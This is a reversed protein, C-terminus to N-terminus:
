EETDSQKMIKIFRERCSKCFKISTTQDPRGFTYMKVDEGSQCCSCLHYSKTEKENYFMVVM